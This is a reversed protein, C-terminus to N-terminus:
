GCHSRRRSKNSHQVSLAAPLYGAPRMRSAGLAHSCRGTACCCSSAFSPRRYNGPSADRGSRDDGRGLAGQSRFRIVSRSFVWGPRWMDHSLDIARSRRSGANEFFGPATGIPNRARGIKPSKYGRGARRKGSGNRRRYEATQERSLPRRRSTAPPSSSPRRSASRHSLKGRGLGRAPHDEFDASPPM